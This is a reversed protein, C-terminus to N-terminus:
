VTLQLSMEPACFGVLLVNQTQIKKIQFSLTIYIDGFWIDVQTVNDEYM